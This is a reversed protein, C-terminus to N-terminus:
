EKTNVQKRRILTKIRTVIEMSHVPKVVYENAGLELAKVIQSEEKFYSLMIVPVDSFTRIQRIAEYGDCDKLFSDLLIIDPPTPKAPTVCQKGSNTYTVKYWTYGIELAQFIVDKAETESDNLNVLALM